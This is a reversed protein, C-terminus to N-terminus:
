ASQVHKEQEPRRVQALGRYTIQRCREPSIGWDDAMQEFEQGACWGLVCAVSRGDLRALRPWPDFTPETAGNGFVAQVLQWHLYTAFV